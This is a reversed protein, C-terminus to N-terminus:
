IMENFVLTKLANHVYKSHMWIINKNCKIIINILASFYLAKDSQMKNIFIIGIM